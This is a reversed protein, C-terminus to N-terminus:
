PRRALFAYGIRLGGTIRDDFAHLIALTGLAHSLALPVINPYRDYIACWGLAGALTVTSLMPNPLHVAAFLLAAVIVGRRRGKARQAERLVVTQLIWQQAGGWLILVGLTGLFDRRDHLTGAAAGAALLLLALPITFLAAAGLGRPLARWDLGWERHRVDHWVALVVVIVIPVREAEGPLRPALFWTDALIVGLIALTFPV